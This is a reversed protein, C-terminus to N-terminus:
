FPKTKRMEGPSYGCYKKFQRYFYFENDYGTAFAIEKVSKSTTMLMRIAVEMRLRQMYTFPTLGFKKKFVRHFYNPAMASKSAIVELSPNNKFEDNM